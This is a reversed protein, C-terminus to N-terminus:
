EFCSMHIFGGPTWHAWLDLQGIKEGTVIESIEVVRGPMLTCTGGWAIKFQRGPGERVNAFDIDKAIRLFQKASYDYLAAIWAKLEADPWDSPDSKRGPAIWRHALIRGQSIHYARILHKCLDVLALRQVDPWDQGKRHETEIGIGSENHEVTGAHWSCRNDDVLQYVTADRCVYYHASVQSAATCLWGLDSARTGEGTHLIISTIPRTRVHHNPSRYSTHDINM